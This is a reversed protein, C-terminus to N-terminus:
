DSRNSHHCRNTIQIQVIKGVNQSCCFHRFDSQKPMTIRSNTSKKMIIAERVVKLMTNKKRRGGRHFRSMWKWDNFCCCVIGNAKQTYRNTRTHTHTHKHRHQVMAIDHKRACTHTKYQHQESVARQHLWLPPTNSISFWNMKRLVCTSYTYVDETVNTKNYAYQISAPQTAQTNVNFQIHPAYM